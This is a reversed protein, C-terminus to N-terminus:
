RVREYETVHTSLWAGAPLRLTVALDEPTDLDLALGPRTVVTATPVTALHRHFSLPGYRFPFSGTAVVLTTGGDHSPALVTGGASWAHYLDAPTLTPVDAHLVAWRRGNAAGVIAAAAENLGGGAPEAIVAWGQGSAWRAVGDDGTVIAPIAGTRAVMAATHAAVAKGVRSRQTRDLVPALRAKAVGFPKIPIGVLAPTM